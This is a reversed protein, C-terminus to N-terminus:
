AAVAKLCHLYVQGRTVQRISADINATTVEAHQFHSCWLVNGYTSCYQVEDVTSISLIADVAICILDSKLSSTKRPPVNEKAHSSGKCLLATLNELCVCPIVGSSAASVAEEGPTETTLISLPNPAPM